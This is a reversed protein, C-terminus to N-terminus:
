VLVRKSMELVRPSALKRFDGYKMRILETHTGANFAIEDDETLSEDVYTDLGYLIGFPPMAGVEVGPFLNRFEPETALEVRKADLLDRLHAVDVKRSAPLVLMAMKGDIKVMVSKAMEKGPIHAAQAIENATYAPSHRITIYKIRNEDLFERVKQAPM